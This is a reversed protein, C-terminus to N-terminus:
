VKRHVSETNSRVTSNFCPKYTHRTGGKSEELVVEPPRQGQLSLLAYAGNSEDVSAALAPNALEVDPGPRHILDPDERTVPGAGLDGGPYDLDEGSSRLQVLSAGSHLTVSCIGASKPHFDVREELSDPNKQIPSGFTRPSGPHGLPKGPEKSGMMARLQLLEARLSQNEAIAKQMPSLNSSGPLVLSGIGKAMGRANGEEEDSMFDSM